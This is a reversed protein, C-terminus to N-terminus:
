LGKQNGVSPKEGVDIEREVLDDVGLLMSQLRDHEEALFETSPGL